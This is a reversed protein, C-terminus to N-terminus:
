FLILFDEIGAVPNQTLGQRNLKHTKKSGTKAANLMSSGSFGELVM